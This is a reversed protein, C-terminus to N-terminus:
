DELGTVIDSVTAKCGYRWALHQVVQYSCKWNPLTSNLCFRFNSESGEQTMGKALQSKYEAVLLDITEENLNPSVALLVQLAQLSDALKIKDISERALLFQKFEVRPSFNQRFGHLGQPPLNLPLFRILAKYSLPDSSSVTSKDVM